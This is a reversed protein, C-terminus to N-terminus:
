NFLRLIPWVFTREVWSSYYVCYATAIGTPFTECLLEYIPGSFVDSEYYTKKTYAWIANTELGMECYTEYPIYYDYSNFIGMTPHEGIVVFEKDYIEIVEGVRYNAEMPTIVQYKDTFAGTWASYNPNNEGSACALLADPQTTLSERRFEHGVLVCEFLENDDLEGNYFFTPAYSDHFMIRYQRYFIGDPNEVPQTFLMTIYNGFFSGVIALVALCVAFIIYIRKARRLKKNTRM